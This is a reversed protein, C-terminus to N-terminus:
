SYLLKLLIEYSANIIGWSVLARTYNVHAGSFLRIFQRGRAQYVDWFTQRMTQFPGGVQTQQHAKIVNIPYMVTSIFAGLFAGSVFDSLIHGWWSRGPDPLRTKVETRLGFFLINSPGNRLLISVMGRYYEKVGFKWMERTTHISNKYKGHFKKDQLLTQIREFPCLIAETCGALTAALALTAGDSLQPQYYKLLKGYQDFMGFMISTSITKQCLPPLIGRYLNKLGERKLQKVASATSIGHLMMM